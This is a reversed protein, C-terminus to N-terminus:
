AGKRGPKAPTDTKTEPDAGQFTGGAAKVKQAFDETVGHLREHTLRRVYAQNKAADEKSCWMLTTDGNRISGDPAVQTGPPLEKFWETGKHEEANVLRYGRRAHAFQKTNDATGAVKHSRAWRMNVPLETAKLDAVTIRGARYEAVALDRARRLDSFGPVYSHDRDMRTQDNFEASNPLDGFESLAETQILPKKQPQAL